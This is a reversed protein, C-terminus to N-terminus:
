PDNTIKEMQVMSPFELEYDDIDKIEGIYLMEIKSPRAGMINPVKKHNKQSLNLIKILRYLGFGCKHLLLAYFIIAQHTEPAFSKQEDLPKIFLTQFNLCTLQNIDQWNPHQM